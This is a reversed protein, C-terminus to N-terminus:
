SFVEVFFHYASKRVAVSIIALIPIETTCEYLPLMATMGYGHQRIKIVVDTIM